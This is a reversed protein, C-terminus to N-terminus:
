TRQSIEDIAKNALYFAPLEPSGLNELVRNLREASKLSNEMQGSLLLYSWAIEWANRQTRTM